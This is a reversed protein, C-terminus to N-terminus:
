YFKKKLIIPNKTFKIDVGTTEAKEEDVAIIIM